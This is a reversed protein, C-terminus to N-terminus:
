LYAGFAQQRLKKSPDVQSSQMTRIVPAGSMPSPMLSSQTMADNKARMEEPSTSVAALLSMAKPPQPPLLNGKDDYALPQEPKYTDKTLDKQGPMMDLLGSVQKPILDGMMPKFNGATASQLGQGFDTLSSGIAQGGAALLQAM